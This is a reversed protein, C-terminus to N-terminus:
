FFQSVPIFPTESSAAPLAVGPVSETPRGYPGAPWSRAADFVFALELGGVLALAVVTLLSRNRLSRRSAANTKM